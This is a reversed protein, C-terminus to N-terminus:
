PIAPVDVTVVKSKSYSIRANKHYMQYRVRWRTDTNNYEVPFVVTSSNTAVDFSAKHIWATGPIFPNDVEFHIKFKRSSKPIANLQSQTPHYTYVVKHMVHPNIPGYLGPPIAIDLGKAANNKTVKIENQDVNQTEEIIDNSENHECSVLFLIGMIPFALLLKKM